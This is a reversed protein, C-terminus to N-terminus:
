PGSTSDAPGPMPIGSGVVVIEMRYPKSGEEEIEGTVVFGYRGYFALAKANRAEVVLQVCTTGPHRGIAAQLLGEGIGQRQRAQLVYLRSLLLVSGEQEVAFAHGVVEDDQIAVLFSANPRASQTALVDLAHWQDTTATVREVGLLSDYTDHWTAVLLNRVEGIDDSTASRILFQRNNILRSGPRVMIDLGALADM